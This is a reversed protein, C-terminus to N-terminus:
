NEDETIISSVLVMFVKYFSRLPALLSHAIKPAVAETYTSSIISNVVIDGHMTQPNYLGTNSVINVETVRTKKGYENQIADGVQVDRAPILKDNSYIFHGESLQISNRDDTQLQVFQSVAHEDRHTFQFVTSYTNPGVLIKDGVNLDKM